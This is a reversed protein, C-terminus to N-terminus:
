FEPPSSLWSDGEMGMKHGIRFMRRMEEPDYPTDDFPEYTKPLSVYKFDYGNVEAHLFMKYLSSLVSAKVMTKITRNAIPTLRRPVVDYHHDTEGDVVIYLVSNDVPEKDGSVKRLAAKWDITSGFYVMQGLTGGDVHMEDYVEGEAEVEIFTPPFLIPIAASAVLISRFIEYADAHRSNAVAGMSWIVARQADFNTTSILLRQGNNHAMGIADIIEDTVYEEVMNRLPQNDALSERWYAGLISKKLYIDDATVQTYVEELTDDYESGLLAFPAILAGTSVGTVVKFVPRSGSASWGKLFGAGFAGHEGGGSLSLGSYQFEGKPGRPFLGEPEDRISQVVDAQWAPDFSDGWARVHAMDAVGAVEELEPPVPTRFLENACSSILLTALVLLSRTSLRRQLPSFVINVQKM